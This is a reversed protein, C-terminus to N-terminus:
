GWAAREIPALKAHVAAGSQVIHQQVQQPLPSRVARRDRLSALRAGLRDMTQPLVEGVAVGAAEFEAAAAAYEAGLRDLREAAAIRRAAAERFLRAREGAFLAAAEGEAVTVAARAQAEAESILAAAGASDAILKDAKAVDAPKLAEGAAARDVLSRRAQRADDAAIAADKARWQLDALRERAADITAIADVGGDITALTAITKADIPM